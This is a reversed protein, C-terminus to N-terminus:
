SPKRAEAGAQRNRHGEENGRQDAFMRKGARRPNLVATGGPHRHSYIGQLGQSNEHAVVREGDARRHPPSAEM